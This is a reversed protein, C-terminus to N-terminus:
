SSEDTMIPRAQQSNRYQGMDGLQNREPDQRASNAAVRGNAPLSKNAALCIQLNEWDRAMM